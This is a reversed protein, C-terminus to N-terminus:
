SGWGTSIPLRRRLTVAFGVGSAVCAHFASSHTQLRIEEITREDDVLELIRREGPRANETDLERVTVPIAELTPIVQRIRRWEDVRQVGEMVIATVDLSMPVMASEPLVDDLFRFDAETWSFLDYISEEAKLRLM